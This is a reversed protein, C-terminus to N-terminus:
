PIQAVWPRVMEPPSTVASPAVCATRLKMPATVTAGAPPSCISTVAPAPLSLAAAIMPEGNVLSSSIESLLMELALYKWLMASAASPGPEPSGLGLM